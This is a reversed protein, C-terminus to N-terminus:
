IRGHRLRGFRTGMVGVTMAPVDACAAARCPPPQDRHQADVSSTNSAENWPGDNGKEFELELVAGLNKRLPLNPLEHVLEHARVCLVAATLADSNEQLFPNRLETVFNAPAIM